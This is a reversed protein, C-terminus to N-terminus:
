VHARGIEKKESPALSMAITTALEGWEPRKPADLTLAPWTETKLRGKKKAENLAGLLATAVMEQVIGHSM